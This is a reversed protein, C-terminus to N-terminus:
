VGIFQRKQYEKEVKRLINDEEIEVTTICGGMGKNYVNDEALLRLLLKMIEPDNKLQELNKM